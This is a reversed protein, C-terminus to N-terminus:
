PLNGHWYCREIKWASQLEMLNVDLYTSRSMVSTARFSTPSKGWFCAESTENDHNGKEKKLMDEKKDMDQKPKSMFFGPPQIVRDVGSAQM